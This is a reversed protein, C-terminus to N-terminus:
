LNFLRAWFHTLIYKQLANNLLCICTCTCAFLCSLFKLFIYLIAGTIFFIIVSWLPSLFDGSHCFFMVPCVISVDSSSSDFCWCISVLVMSFILSDNNATSTYSRDCYLNIKNLLIFHLALTTIYITMICVLYAHLIFYICFICSISVKLKHGWATMTSQLWQWGCYVIVHKCLM